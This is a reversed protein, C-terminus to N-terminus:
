RRLINFIELKYISIKNCKMLFLSFCFNHKHKQIHVIHVNYYIYITCITYLDHTKHYNLQEPFITLFIERLFYFNKWRNLKKRYFGIVQYTSFVELLRLQQGVYFSKILRFLKNAFISAMYKDIAYDLLVTCAMNGVSPCKLPKSSITRFSYCSTVWLYDTTM